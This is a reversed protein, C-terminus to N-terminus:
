PLAKRTLREGWQKFLEVREDEWDIEQRDTSILDSEDDTGADLFDAEIAGTLYKTAYHGSAKGELFFYFPPAQATKGRAYITFGRVDPSHIPGGDSFGYFYRVESGDELHVIEYGQKPPVRM